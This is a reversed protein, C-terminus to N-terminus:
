NYFKLEKKGIKVVKSVVFAKIITSLVKVMRESLCESQITLILFKMYMKDCKVQLKFHLEMVRLINM